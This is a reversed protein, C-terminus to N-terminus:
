QLYKICNYIMFFNNQFIHIIKKDMDSSPVCVEFIGNDINLISVYQNFSGSGLDFILVNQKDHSKKKDLGYPIAAATLENIIRPVNLAISGTDQCQSDNFYAPVVVDRIATSLYAETTEKMKASIM